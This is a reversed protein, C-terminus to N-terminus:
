GSSEGRVEQGIIVIPQGQLHTLFLTREEGQGSLRLDRMLGEPTLPSGRKKVIVRGINRQRLHARLRKLSFPLWGEVAWVRAFPSHVLCDSTLYAIDADLQAADLNEALATVLGARLIAPDPEYLYAQPPSLRAPAREGAPHVEAAWLTHGGPLLTARRAASNLPGFWLVAEKLEGRLSVFEIECDYGVLEALDVGPSIKVGLAPFRLLWDRIVALPPIYDHVSFLRRGQSRRAPDFFLALGSLPSIPLPFTLDSQLFATRGSLGLAAANAQAMLLRLPDLDIGLTPACAVLALTDGGVSCGLDVLHEFSRYRRSRHLAVEHPSAQELAPRTFYLRSAHPFKANAEGRLIAIELAARALEPPYRKGLGAFDRLFDEERPALAQAAALIEQGSPTLLTRLAAIEM